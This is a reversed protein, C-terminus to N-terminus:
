GIDGCINKEDYRCKHRFSYVSLGSLIHGKGGGEEGRGKMNKKGDVKLDIGKHNM